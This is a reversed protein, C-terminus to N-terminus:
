KDRPAASSSAAEQSGHHCPGRSSPLDRLRSQQSPPASRTHSAPFFRLLTRPCAPNPVSCFRFVRGRSSTWRTTGTRSGGRYFILTLVRIPNCLISGTGSGCVPGPFSNKHFDHHLKQAPFPPQPSRRLGFSGSLPRPFRRPALQLPSRSAFKSSFNAFTLSSSKLPQLGM